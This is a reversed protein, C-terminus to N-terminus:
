SKVLIKMSRAARATSSKTITPTTSSLAAKLAQLHQNREARKMFSEKGPVMTAPKDGYKILYVEKLWPNLHNFRCLNLYMM